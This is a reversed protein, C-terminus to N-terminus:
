ETRSCCTFRPSAYSIFTFLFLLATSALHTVNFHDVFISFYIFAPHLAMRIPLFGQSVAYHSSSVRWSCRRRTLNCRGCSFAVIPFCVPEPPQRPQHAADLIPCLSSQAGQQGRLSGTWIRTLVRPETSTSPRTPRNSSDPTASPATPSLSGSSLARRTNRDACKLTRHLPPTRGM